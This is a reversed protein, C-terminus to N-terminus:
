CSHEPRAGTLVGHKTEATKPAQGQMDGEILTLGTRFCKHPSAWFAFLLNAIFDVGAPPTRTECLRRRCGTLGPFGQFLEFGKANHDGKERADDEEGSAMGLIGLLRGEPNSRNHDPEDKTQAAEDANLNILLPSSFSLM